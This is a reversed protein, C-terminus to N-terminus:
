WLPDLEEFELLLWVIIVFGVLLMVVAMLRCNIGKGYKIRNAIAEIIM